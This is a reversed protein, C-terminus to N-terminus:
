SGGKKNEPRKFTWYQGQYTIVVEELLAHDIFRGFVARRMQQMTVLEALQVIVNTAQKSGADIAHKLNNLSKPNNAREVEWLKGDIRLDPSKREFADPFIIERAPNHENLTPLIDVKHGSRAYEAGIERLAPYDHAQQDVQLHERLLGAGQREVLNFQSDYPMLSLGDRLVEDPVGDWYPHGAPFVLGKEALNVKFMDPINDPHVIDQDATQAGAGHQRVTSRCRFHNPPYYVTWFSDGVPKRVGNLSRCLDTTRGDIIADFELIPLYSKQQQITVWHSAMQASQVATVRETDLWAGVFNENVKAAEQAYAARSRIVGKEDLLAETLAKLQQYNKAASFQYVNRQLHTLMNHDATNYDTGLESGYGKEVAAWLKKAFARTMDRDISAPMGKAEWVSAVM